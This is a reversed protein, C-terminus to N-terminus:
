KNIYKECTNDEEVEHFCEGNKKCSYCLLIYEEVKVKRLCKSCTAFYENNGKYNWENGCNKCKLKVM